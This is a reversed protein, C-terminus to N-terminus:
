LLRENTNNLRILFGQFTDAVPKADKLSMGIFPMMQIRMEETQRTDFAFGEGGGDSGFCLLGPAYEAVEYNRNFDILEASKYLVLCHDGIFGEGGDYAGM